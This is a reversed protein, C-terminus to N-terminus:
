SHQWRGEGEVNLSLKFYWDGVRWCCCAGLIISLAFARRICAELRVLLVLGARGWAAEMTPPLLMLGIGTAAPAGRCCCHLRDDDLTQTRAFFSSSPTRLYACDMPKGVSSPTNPNRGKASTRLTHAKHLPASTHRNRSPFEAEGELSDVSHPEPPAQAGPTPTKRMVQGADDEHLHSGGSGARSSDHMLECRAQM